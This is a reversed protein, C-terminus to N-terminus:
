LFDKRSLRVPEGTTVKLSNAEALLVILSHALVGEETLNLQSKAAVLADAEGRFLSITELAKLNAETLLVEAENNAADKIKVASQEALLLNTNAKTTELRRQVIALAIDEEAAQKAAVAENYAAPLHVYTLQLSAAVANVGEEGTADDGELKHKLNEMMRSQIAGRKGQFESAAFESCSLHIASLGAKEVISAWNHFDRYKVIAPLLNATTMQYQFTVSFEVLLGDNSLCKRDHVDVSIYTSPFKIFRFGPPGIFLGGSKTAEDLQKKHVNYQVGMETSPVKKLSAILVGLSVAVVVVVFAVTFRNVSM